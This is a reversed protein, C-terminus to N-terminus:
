ITRIRIDIVDSSVLRTYIPTAPDHSCYKDMYAILENNLQQAPQTFEVGDFAQQFETASQRHLGKHKLQTEAQNILDVLPQWGQLPDRYYHIWKFKEDFRQHGLSASAHLSPQHREFLEFGIVAAYVAQDFAAKTEYPIGLLPCIQKWNPVGFRDILANM